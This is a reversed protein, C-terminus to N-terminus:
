GNAVYDAAWDMTRRIGYGLATTAAFVAVAALIFGGNVENLEDNTLGRIEATEQVNM